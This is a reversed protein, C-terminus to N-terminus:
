HTKENFREYAEGKIEREKHHGREKARGCVSEWVYGGIEADACEEM